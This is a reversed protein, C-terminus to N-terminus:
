WVFFFDEYYDIYGWPAEQWEVLTMVSSSQAGWIWIVEPKWWQTCAITYIPWHNASTDGDEGERKQTWQLGNEVDTEKEVITEDTANKLSEM